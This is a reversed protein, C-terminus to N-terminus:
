MSAIGYHLRVNGSRFDRAEILKLNIKNVNNFLSKGTGLIDPSVLILYEDILGERALQQIITGSGFIAIDPGDGERLKRVEQIAYGIVLKSNKWTVENMSKSLVVKTMQNLENSLIRAEDTANPDMAVHPWNGEFMQYTVRGLLLTDPNMMGHATKDVEPDHVFWDIEGNPGAFFGDVSVRNLVIVKRM